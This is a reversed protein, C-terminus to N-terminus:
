PTNLIPSIPNIIYRLFTITWRVTWKWSFKDRHNPIQHLQTGSILVLRYSHKLFRHAGISCCIESSMQTHTHRGSNTQRLGVPEGINGERNTRGFMPNAAFMDQRTTKLPGLNQCRNTQSKTVCIAYKRWTNIWGAWELTKLECENQQHNEVVLVWMSPECPVEVNTADLVELHMDICARWTPLKRFQSNPM